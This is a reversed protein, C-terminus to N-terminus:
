LSTRFNESPAFTLPERCGELFDHCLIPLCKAGRSRIEL